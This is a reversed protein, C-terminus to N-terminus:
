IIVIPIGQWDIMVFGGIDILTDSHLCVTHKGHKEIFQLIQNGDPHKDIDGYFYVNDNDCFSCGGIFGTDYGPLAINGSKIELLDIGAENLKNAISQDATIIANDSVKCISCGAYGQKVLIPEFGNNKLQDALSGDICKPNFIAYNGM